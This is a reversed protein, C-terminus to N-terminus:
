LFPGSAECGRGGVSAVLTLQQWEVSSERSVAVSRHCFVMLRKVFCMFAPCVACFSLLKVVEPLSGRNICVCTM